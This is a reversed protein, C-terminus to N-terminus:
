VPIRLTATLGDDASGEFAPLSPAGSRPRKPM